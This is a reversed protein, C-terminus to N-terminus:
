EAGEYCHAHWIARCETPQELAYMVQSPIAHFVSRILAIVPEEDNISRRCEECLKKSM